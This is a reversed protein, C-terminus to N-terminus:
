WLIARQICICCWIYWSFPSFHTAMNNSRRITNYYRLTKGPWCNCLSIKWLWHSFETIQNLKYRTLIRNRVVKVSWSAINHENKWRDLSTHCGLLTLITKMSFSFFIAVFNIRPVFNEKELGELKDGARYEFNRETSSKRQGFNCNLCLYNKDPVVYVFILVLFIHPSQIM